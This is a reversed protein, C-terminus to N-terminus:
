LLHQKMSLEWMVQLWFFYFLGAGIAIFVVFAIILKKKM